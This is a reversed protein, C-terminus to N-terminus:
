ADEDRAAQYKDILAQLNAAQDKIRQVEEASYPRHATGNAIEALADQELKLMSRWSNIMPDDSDTM